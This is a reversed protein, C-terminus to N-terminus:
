LVHGRELVADKFEQSVGYPDLAESIADADLGSLPQLLPEQHPECGKLKPFSYFGERGDSDVRYTFLWRVHPPPTWDEESKGKDWIRFWDKLHVSPNAVEAEDLADVIIVLNNTSSRRPKKFGKELLRQFSSIAEHWDRPMRDLDVDAAEEDWIQLRKGQLMLHYLVAQLHNMVGSGCFHYLVPVPARQGEVEHEELQRIADALLAGKGMGAPSYVKLLARGETALAWDLIARRERERGVFCQQYYELRLSHDFLEGAGSRISQRMPEFREEFHVAGPQHIEEGNVLALLAANREEGSGHLGQFICPLGDQDGPQIFPHLPVIENGQQWSYCGDSLALGGDAFRTALSRMEEFMDGAQALKTAHDKVLRIHGHVFRNRFTVFRELLSQGNKTKAVADYWNEQPDTSIEWVRRWQSDSPLVASLNDLVQRIFLVDMAADGQQLKRCLQLVAGLRLILTGMGLAAMYYNNLGKADEEMWTVLAGAETVDHPRHKDFRELYPALPQELSM